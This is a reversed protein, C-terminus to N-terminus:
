HWRGKDDYHCGNEDTEGEHALLLNPVSEPLSIGEYDIHLAPSSEYFDKGMSVEEMDIVRKMAHGIFPNEHHLATSLCIVAAFLSMMIINKKM